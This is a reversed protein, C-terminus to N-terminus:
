GGTEEAAAFSASAAGGESNRQGIRAAEEAFTEVAKRYKPEKYPMDLGLVDCDVVTANEEMAEAIKQLGPSGQSNWGSLVIKTVSANSKLASAIAEARKLGINNRSYDLCLTTLSNDRLGAVIEDTLDDSTMTYSTEVVPAFSFTAECHCVPAGSCLTAQASISAIM